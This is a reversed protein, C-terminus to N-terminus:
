RKEGTLTGKFFQLEAIMGKMLKKGGYVSYGSGFSKKYDKFKPWYNYLSVDGYFLSTGFDAGAFWGDKLGMTNQDTHDPNVWEEKEQAFLCTSLALLSGLLMTKVLYPSRRLM